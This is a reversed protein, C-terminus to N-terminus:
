QRLTRGLHHRQNRNNGDDHDCCIRDYDGQDPETLVSSPAGSIVIPRELWISREPGDETTRAIRTAIASYAIRMPPPM